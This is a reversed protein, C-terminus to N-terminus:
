MRELVKLRHQKGQTAELARRARQSSHKSLTCHAPGFRDTPQAGLSSRPCIGLPTLHPRESKNQTVTRACLVCPAGPPHFCRFGARPKAIHRIGERPDGVGLQNCGRRISVVGDYGGFQRGRSEPLLLETSQPVPPPGPSQKTPGREALGPYLAPVTFLPRSQPPRRQGQGM